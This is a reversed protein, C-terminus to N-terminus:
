RKVLSVERERVAHFYPLPLGSQGRLETITAEAHVRGPRLQGSTLKGTNKWIHDTGDCVATTGGIGHQVAGSTQGVSSSLFVPGKGPACRYTGTLTVTGDRAVRVTPDVTVAEGSGAKASVSTVFLLVLAGVTLALAPRQPM